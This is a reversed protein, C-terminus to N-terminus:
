NASVDFAGKLANVVAALSTGTTQGNSSLMQQLEEDTILLSRSLADFGVTSVVLMRLIEQAVSNEGNIVAENAEGLLAHALAHDRQIRENIGVDFDQTLEV